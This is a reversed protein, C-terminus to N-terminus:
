GNYPYNNNYYVLPLNAGAAQVANHTFFHGAEAAQVAPTKVPAIAGNPYVTLPQTNYTTGGIGYTNAKAQLNAASRDLSQMLEQLLALAKPGTKFVNTNSVVGAARQRAMYEFLDKLMENPNVLARVEEATRAALAANGRNQGIKELLYGLRAFTGTPGGPLNAPNSYFAEFEPASGPPIMERFLSLAEFAIEETTRAQAGAAVLFLIVLFKMSIHTKKVASNNLSGM